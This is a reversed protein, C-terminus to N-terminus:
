HCVNQVVCYFHIMEIISSWKGDYLLVEIAQQLCHQTNRVHYTIIAAINQSYFWGVKKNM